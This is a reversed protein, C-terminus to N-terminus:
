FCRILRIVVIEGIVIIVADAAMLIAILYILTNWIDLVM